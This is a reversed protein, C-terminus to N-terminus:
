KSKRWRLYGDICVYMFFLDRVLLSWVHTQFHHIELHVGYYLINSIMWLPFCIIMKRNNALSGAIVFMLGVIGIIEIM